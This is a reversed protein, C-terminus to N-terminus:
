TAGTIWAKAADLESLTFTKMHGPYIPAFMAAVFRIWAHDTVIAIHSVDNWHKFGFKQDDWIAEPSFDTPENRIVALAKIPGKAMMAEARPILRDRYDEHTIKGASEMGLVGEPLGDIFTFM